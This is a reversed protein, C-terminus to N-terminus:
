VMWSPFYLSPLPVHLLDTSILSSLIFSASLALPFFSDSFNYPVPRGQFFPCPPPPLSPFHTYLHSLLFIFFSLSVPTQSLEPSNGKRGFGSTNQTLTLAPSLSSSFCLYLCFGHSLHLCLSFPSRKKGKGRHTMHNICEFEFSTQHTRKHELFHSFFCGHSM